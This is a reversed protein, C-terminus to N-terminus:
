GERGRAVRTRWTCMLSLAYAAFAVAFACICVCLDQPLTTPGPAGHHRDNPPHKPALSTTFLFSLPPPVRVRVCVCMLLRLVITPLCVLCCTHQKDVDGSSSPLLLWLLLMMLLLLTTM